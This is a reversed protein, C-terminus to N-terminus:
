GGHREERGRGTPQGNEAEGYRTEAAQIGQKAQVCGGNRRRFQPGLRGANSPAIIRRIRFFQAGQGREQLVHAIPEILGFVLPNQIPFVGFAGQAFSRLVGGLLGPLRYISEMLRQAFRALGGILFDTREGGTTRVGAQLLLDVPQRVLHVRQAGV